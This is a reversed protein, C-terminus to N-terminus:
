AEGLVVVDTFIEEDHQRATVLVRQRGAPAGPLPRADIWCPADLEAYRIFVAEMGLVATTRLWSASQAAQRAAELLLMGPVHDVPHDFLIPHSTDVRLQWRDEGETHALVVDEARRGGAMPGSAPPPAPLARAAVHALDAYPGRLRRYVARDQVTFHTRAEALPVGERWARVHLVMAAARARRYKVDTATVHLEVDAGHGEDRAAAPDLEWRFDQWLLHHDLPVDYAAHSLLPLAQRISESLLLPDLLGDRHVYFGHSRPWRATVTFSDPGTRRWGTLLIESPNTKHTLVQPVCAAPM